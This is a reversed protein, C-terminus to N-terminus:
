PVAIHCEQSLRSRDEFEGRRDADDLLDRFAICQGDVSGEIVPDARRRVLPKRDDAEIVSDTRKSIRAWGLTGPRNRECGVVEMDQRDPCADMSAVHTVDAYKVLNDIAIRREEPHLWANDNAVEVAICHPISFPSRISVRPNDVLQLQDAQPAEIVVLRALRLSFLALWREIEVPLGLSRVMEVMCKHRLRNQISSSQRDAVRIDPELQTIMHREDDIDGGFGLCVAGLSAIQRENARDIGLAATLHHAKRIDAWM